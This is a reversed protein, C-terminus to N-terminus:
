KPGTLPDPDNDTERLTVFEYAKAAVLSVKPLEEPYYYDTSQWDGDDPKYRKEVKVSYRVITRGDQEVERRWVSARIRGARFEKIPPNPQQTM